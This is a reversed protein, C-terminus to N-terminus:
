FRGTVLFGKRKMMMVGVVSSESTLVYITFVNATLMEM